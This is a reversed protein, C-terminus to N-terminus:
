SSGGAARAISAQETVTVLAAGVAWATLACSVAVGALALRGSAACLRELVFGAFLFSAFLYSLHVYRTYRPEFHTLGISAMAYAIPLVVILLAVPSRPYLLVAGLVLVYGGVDFLQQLRVIPLAQTLWVESETAIRQWRTVIVRAVFDPHERWARLYEGMFYRNAEVSLWAFGKSAAIRGAVADDLVYGHENPIEGLGEWMSNGAATSTFVWHGHQIRNHLGWSAVPVAFAALMIALGAATSRGPRRLLVWAALAGPLLLLDPRVLAGFGLLLGGAALLARSPPERDTWLVALVLAALMLFPSVFEALILTSGAAFLPYAAYTASACLSLARGLGARRLLFYVLLVGLSDIAAQVLRLGQLDDIGALRVAAIFAPYGPPYGLFPYRGALLEGALALYGPTLGGAHNVAAWAIFDGTGGYVVIAQYRMVIAAALALGLVAWTARDAHRPNGQLTM